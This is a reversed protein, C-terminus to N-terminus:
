ILYVNDVVALWFLVEIYIRYDPLPKVSKIDWYMTMEYRIFKTSPAMSLYHGIMKWNMGVCSM